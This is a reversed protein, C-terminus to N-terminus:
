VMDLRLYRIKEHAVQKTTPPSWFNTACTDVSKSNAAATPLRLQCHPPLRLAAKAGCERSLTAAMCVLTSSM